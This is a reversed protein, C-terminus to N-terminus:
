VSAFLLRIASSHSYGDKSPRASQTTTLVELKTWWLRWVIGGDGVIFEVACIMVPVTRVSVSFPPKALSTAALTLERMGKDAAFM